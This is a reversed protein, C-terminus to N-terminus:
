LVTTSVLNLHNIDYRCLISVCEPFYKTESPPVHGANASIHFPDSNLSVILLTGTMWVKGVVNFFNSFYGLVRVQMQRSRFSELQEELWDLHINGPDKPDAYNCGGVASEWPDATTM